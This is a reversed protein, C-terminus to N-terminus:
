NLELTINYLKGWLYIQYFYALLQPGMMLQGFWPVKFEEESNNILNNLKDINFLKYLINNPDNLSEKLLDKILKEYVPSHTKPYPNKKRDFIDDPLFDKFADRLLGKERQDKYMYHWPVNYVYEVIKKSAFPVRVELSTRMTQSDARTLLTQMFWEINLYIMKRKNTDEFTDDDYDIESLTENYQELIYDKINLAKIDDNFLDVRKDIDRIWPFHNLSYLEKKYFWPYGGFIEDACEGSLSVKHHKQIQKSFLLLSSDIDAMGPADRALVSEQLGLILNKQSLVVNTHKTDYLEQMENIYHSDRTTQYDYPKFYKDQDQYDVSFTSINNVYQSAVATIISSDLGGSLMSSIPVDSLLQKQISENVLCRVDYATEEYSKNHAKKKLSWYRKINLIGCDVKIYHAPRLSYIDKYITKGPTVSPGLSLLEKIGNTDVVAKQLFELICKIESAAIFYGDKHYYYLPKVGLHDRAIFLQEEYSIVFSFIGEFLDLCKEKYAIYSVLLVETDSQSYFHYGDNILKAKIENMNYIEGNYTITYEIGEHKYHYPQIGGDIDIISLRCHGLLVHEKSVINIDDPGRFSLLNLMKKFTLIQNNLDQRYNYMCLIGCM